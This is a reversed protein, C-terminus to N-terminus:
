PQKTALGHMSRLIKYVVTHMAIIYKIVKVDFKENNM